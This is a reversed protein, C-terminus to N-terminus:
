QEKAKGYGAPLNGELNFQMSYLKNYLGGLRILDDHRGSEVVKGGEMVIINDAHLITSLRHAIAVVTRNRTLRNVAETILRETETDLSSTAEDLILIEPDRLVARAISIRQKEGGSLRVGREGLITEYGDPLRMVFDHINAAKAAQIVEEEGANFRGYMINYRIGANFIFADQSVFGIKKRWARFELDKINLGDVIIAGANVDYFRPILNVITSKGAGSPGVLATIAGKPITINIDKLVTKSQTYSFTVDKFEISDRFKEIARTGNLITLKGNQDYAEEYHRFAAVNSHANSRIGNLNNLQTLTRVLVLLYAAIFPFARSIDLKIIGAMVIVSIVILGCISVESIPILLHIYRNTNFQARYLKDAESKFAAKEVQEAVSGKILRIGNLIETLKHTYDLFAHSVLEGFKRVRKMILEIPVFVVAALLFILLSAKISIICLLIIFAAVRAMNAVFHAALSMFEGMRKTENSLVSIIHGSKVTDFFKFDYEIFNDMLAISLDRSMKYKIKATLVNSIYVFINKLAIMFFLLILITSVTKLQNTLPFLGVLHRLLPVKDFMSSGPDVVSQLFPIIMGLSASELVSAVIVSVLVLATLAPYKRLYKFAIRALEMKEPRGDNVTNM